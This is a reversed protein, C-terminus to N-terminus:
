WAEVVELKGNYLWFKITFIVQNSEFVKVLIHHDDLVLYKYDDYTRLRENLANEILHEVDDWDMKM